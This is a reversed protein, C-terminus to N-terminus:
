YGYPSDGTVHTCTYDSLVISSCVEMGKTSCRWLFQENETMLPSASAQFETQSPLNQLARGKSVKKVKITQMFNLAM